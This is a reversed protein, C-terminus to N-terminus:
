RRDQYYIKMGDKKIKEIAKNVGAEFTGFHRRFTNVTGFNNSKIYTHSNWYKGKPTSKFERIADIMQDILEDDTPHKGSVGKERKTDPDLKLESNSEWLQFSISM